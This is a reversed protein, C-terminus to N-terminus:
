MLGETAESKKDISYLMRKTFVGQVMYHSDSCKRGFVDEKSVSDSLLGM